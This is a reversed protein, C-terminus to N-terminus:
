FKKKCICSKKYNEKKNRLIKKDFSKKMTRFKGFSRGFSRKFNTFNKRFNRTM